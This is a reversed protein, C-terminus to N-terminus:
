MWRAAGAGSSISVECGAPQAPPRVTRTAILGLCALEDPRPEVRTLSFRGLVDEGPPTTPALTHDSHAQNGAPMEGEPANPLTFEDALPAFRRELFSTAAMSCRRDPISDSDVMHCSATGLHAPHATRTPHIALFSTRGKRPAAQRILLGTAAILILILCGAAMGLVVGRSAPLLLVEFASSGM